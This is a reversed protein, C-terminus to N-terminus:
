AVVAPRSLRGLDLEARFRKETARIRKRRSGEEWARDEEAQAQLLQREAAAKAVKSNASM